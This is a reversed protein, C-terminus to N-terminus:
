DALWARAAARIEARYLGKAADESYVNPHLMLQSTCEGGACRPAGVFGVIEGNDNLAPAGLPASNASLDVAIAPRATGPPLHLAQAECPAGACSLRQGLILERAFTPVGGTLCDRDGELVVLGLVDDKRLIKTTAACPITADTVTTLVRRSSIALGVGRSLPITHVAIAHATIVPLSAPVAVRQVVPSPRPAFFWAVLGMVVVIVARTLWQSGEGRAPSPVDSRLTSSPSPAPRPVVGVVVPAVLGVALVVYALRVARAHTRPVMLLARLVAYGAVLVVNEVLFLRWLTM